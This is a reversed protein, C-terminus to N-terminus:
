EDNRHVFRHWLSQRHFVITGGQSPYAVSLKAYSYATLLAVMGAIVFSLWTAGGALIAALGLVAFIGGGVMGGVGISVAGLLSIQGADGSTKADPKNTM